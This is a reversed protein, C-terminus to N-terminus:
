YWPLSIRIGCCPCYDWESAIKNVPMRINNVMYGCDSCIMVPMPCGPCKEYQTQIWHAYQVSESEKEPLTVELEPSGSLIWYAVESLNKRVLPNDIDILM